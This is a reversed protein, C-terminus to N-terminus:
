DFKKVIYSVYRWTEKIVDESYECYVNNVNPDNCLIYLKDDIYKYGIALLLHGKTTYDKESSIMRGRVSLGVPGDILHQLLEEISYMKAVYAKLNFSAATVTCYVWNGFIDNGYDHSKIAIYRHEFEDFNSFDLGQYKLQMTITTPSCISNGIEPVVLQCLKPVDHLVYTPLKERSVNYTYNPAALAFSIFNFKPSSINLNTRRFIIEYKISTALLNDLVIMEDEDLKILDMQQFYSKNKLGFGWRGYSVYKSWIGNVKLSVRVEVTADKSTIAGWSAVVITSPIISIEKSHYTAEIADEKLILGRDKLLLNAENNIYYDQAYEFIQHKM